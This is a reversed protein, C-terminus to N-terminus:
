SRKHFGRWSYWNRSCSAKSFHLSPETIVIINVKFALGYVELLSAVKDQEDPLPDWSYALRTVIGTANSIAENVKRELRFGTMASGDISSEGESPGAPVITVIVPEPKKGDDGTVIVKSPPL